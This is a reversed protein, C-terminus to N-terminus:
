ALNLNKLVNKLVEITEKQYNDRFKRSIELQVIQYNGGIQKKLKELSPDGPFLKDIVVVPQLNFKKFETELLNKIKEATKLDCIKGHRTGIIFDYGYSDKIGHLAIHIVPKNTGAKIHKLVNVYELRAQKQLPLPYNEDRNLDAQTLRSVKSIVYPAKLREAVVKAIEGTFKDAKPPKAHPADLIIGAKDSLIKYEVFNTKM